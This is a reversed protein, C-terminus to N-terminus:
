LKSFGYHDFIRDALQACLNVRRSINKLGVAGHYVAYMATVNALLAQATCINSTAKERRIHQERTQLAMRYAPNGDVDKSLGIIRGPMKRINQERTSYFGAYPGGFGMPIGFRQASGFCVDAGMEGPSKTICMSLLDSAVIKTVECKCADIQAFLDTFDHLIGKSDPTQVVVGCFERPSYTKFFETYKDVIVEINLLRAKTKIVAITTEFVQDDIFIKNRHGDHLNYSM